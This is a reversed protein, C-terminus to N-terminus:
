ECDLCRFWMRYFRKRYYSKFKGRKYYKKAKPPEDWYCAFQETRPRMVVFIVFRTGLLVFFIWILVVQIFNRCPHLFSFMLGGIVLFIILIM